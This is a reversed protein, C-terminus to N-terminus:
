SYRGVQGRNSAMTGPPKCLLRPSPVSSPCTAPEGGHPRFDSKTLSPTPVLWYPQLGRLRRSTTHGRALPQWKRAKAYEWRYFSPNTYIIKLVRGDKTNLCERFTNIESSRAPNGPALNRVLDSKFYHSPLENSSEAWVPSEPTPTPPPPCM